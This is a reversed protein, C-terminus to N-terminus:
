DEWLLAAGVVVSSGRYACRRLANGVAVYHRPTSGVLAVDFETGDAIESKIYTALGVNPRMKPLAQWTLFIQPDLGVLSSTIRGPILGIDAGDLTNLVTSAAVNIQSADAASTDQNSAGCTVLMIGDSTPVGINNVSRMVCFGSTTLSGSSANLKWALGFFGPSHTAYSPFNTSSSGALLLAQTHANRASTFLGTLTGAGNTGTGVTIRMAPGTANNSTGYEIKLFVPAASQLADDFRWIEYGAYTLAGPRTVTTWNIQGTDATQVLGATALRGSLESGWARFAADSSHDVPTSWTTKPM